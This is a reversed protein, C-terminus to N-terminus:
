FTRVNKRLFGNGQLFHTCKKGLFGNYFLGYKKSFFDTLKEM